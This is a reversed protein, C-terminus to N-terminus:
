VDQLQFFSTKTIEIKVTTVGALTLGFSQSVRKQGSSQPWIYFM